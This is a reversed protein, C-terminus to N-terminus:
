YREIPYEASNYSISLISFLQRYEDSWVSDYSAIFPKYLLLLVWAHHNRWVSNNAPNNIIHLLRVYVCTAIYGITYKPSILTFSM